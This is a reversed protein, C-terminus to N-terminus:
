PRLSFAFEVRGTLDGIKNPIDFCQYDTLLDCPAGKLEESASMQGYIVGARQVACDFEANLSGILYPTDARQRFEILGDQENAYICSYSDNLRTDIDTCLTDMFTHESDFVAESCITGLSNEARIYENLGQRKAELQEAESRRGADLGHELPFFPDMLYSQNFDQAATQMPLALALFVTSVAPIKM